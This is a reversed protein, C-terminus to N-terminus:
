FSPWGVITGADGENRQGASEALKWEDLYLDVGGSGERWQSKWDWYATLEPHAALYEKKVNVADEDGLGSIEYARKYVSGERSKM